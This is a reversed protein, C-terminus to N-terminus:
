STKQRVVRSVPKRTATRSQSSTSACPQGKVGMCSQLYLMRCMLLVRKSEPRRYTSYYVSVVEGVILAVRAKLYKKCDGGLMDVMGFVM